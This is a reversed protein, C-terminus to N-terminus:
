RRPRPMDSQLEVDRRTMGNGCSNSQERKSGDFGDASRKHAAKRWGEFKM